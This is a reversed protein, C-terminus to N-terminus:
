SLLTLSVLNSQWAAQLIRPTLDTFPDGCFARGRCNRSPREVASLGSVGLGGRVLRSPAAAGSAEGGAAGRTRTAQRSSAARRLRGKPLAEIVEVEGNGDVTM